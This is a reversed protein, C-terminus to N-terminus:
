HERLESTRSGVNLNPCLSDREVMMRMGPEMEVRCRRCTLEEEGLGVLWVDEVAVVESPSRKIGHLDRMFLRHRESREAPACRM